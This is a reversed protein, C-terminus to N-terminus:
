TRILKYGRTKVTVIKEKSKQKKLKSRVRAVLRDIAWDSVGQGEVEPWVSEIIFERECVQDRNQELLNLLLYEKKTYEIKNGAGNSEKNKEELFYAFLPSFIENKVTIMGTDWLYQTSKKESPSVNGKKAIRLLIGQEEESLSEWLEESQLAVREDQVLLDFLAKKDTIFNKNENMFVLAFQLYQSYGDVYQTLSKELSSDIFLNYKECYARLAILVDDNKSPCFYYTQVFASVDAKQFIKPSLAELPRVSTFVYSLRNHMAAILGQLNAFMESTAAHQIRDFRLFFITPLYGANCLILLAKRVSDITLFLDQTQISDLFLTRITKNDAESLKLDEAVDIIRKLTLIWFPFIEVEVLDNLDVPIFIHSRVGIYKETVKEQSLFFRLFSSIGVRKMGVLVVSQRNKIKEGLFRADDKRFELPFQSELTHNQV